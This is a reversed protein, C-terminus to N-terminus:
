KSVKIEPTKEGIVFIFKEPLSVSKDEFDVVIRNEKSGDTKEIEKIKGVRGKNQGMTVICISNKGRKVHKKIKLKPLEVLLSDGTKYDKKDSIINKGDNLNLQMKKKKLCSKNDIRCIKINKEKETIEIIDLHKKGPVARFAQSIEPIEIVDFIGVPYRHDKKVKGDILIKGLKIIKKAEGLNESYDLFDRLIVGLPICFNKPHPGPSPVAVFKGESKKRMPYSKGAAIRKEHM